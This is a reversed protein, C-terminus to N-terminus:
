ANRVRGYYPPRVDGWSLSVVIFSLRARLAQRGIRAARPEHPTAAGAFASSRVHRPVVPLVVTSRLMWTGVLAVPVYTWVFTFPLMLSELLEVRFARPTRTSPSM